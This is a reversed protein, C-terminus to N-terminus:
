ADHAMPETLFQDQWMLQAIFALVVAWVSLPLLVWFVPSVAPDSNPSGGFVFHAIAAFAMTGWWLSGGCAVVLSKLAGVIGARDEVIRRRLDAIWGFALWDLATGFGSARDTDLYLQDLRTVKRGRAQLLILGLCLMLGIITFSAIGYTNARLLADLDLEGQNSSAAGAPKSIADLKHLLEIMPFLSLGWIFATGFFSRPLFRRSEQRFLWLLLFVFQIALYAFSLWSPVRQFGGIVLVSALFASLASFSIVTVPYKSFGKRVFWPLRSSRAGSVRPKADAHRSERVETGRVADQWRELADIARRDFWRACAREFDDWEKGDDFPWRLRQEPVCGALRRILRSRVADHNQDLGEICYLSLARRCADRPHVIGAVDMEVSLSEVTDRRQWLRLQLRVLSRMCEWFEALHARQPLEILEATEKNGDADSGELINAITPRLPEGVLRDLVERCWSECAALTWFVHRVHNDGREVTSSPGDPSGAMSDECWALLSRVADRIALMDFLEVLESPSRGRETAIARCAWEVSAQGAWDSAELHLGPALGADIAREAFNRYIQRAARLDGEAPHTMVRLVLNRLVHEVLVQLGSHGRVSAEAGCFALGLIEAVSWRSDHASRDPSVRRRLVQSFERPDKLRLHLGEGDSLQVLLWQREADVHLRVPLGVGTPSAGDGQPMSARSHWRAECAFQGAGLHRLKCDHVRM